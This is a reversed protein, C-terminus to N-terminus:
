EKYNEILYHICMLVVYAALCGAVEVHDKPFKMVFHSVYGLACAIAVVVIKIDM